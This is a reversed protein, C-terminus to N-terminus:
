VKIDLYRNYSQWGNLEARLSQLLETQLKYAAEAYDMAKLEKVCRGKAVDRMIAAPCAKNKHLDMLQEGFAVAFQASTAAKETAMGQLRKCASEIEHIKKEIETAVEVPEKM